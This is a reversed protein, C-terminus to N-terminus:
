RHRTPKPECSMRIELLFHRKDTLLFIMGKICTVTFLDGVENSEGFAVIICVEHEELVSLCPNGNGIIGITEKFDEAPLGGDDVICQVTRDTPHYYGEIAHLDDLVTLVRILHQLM